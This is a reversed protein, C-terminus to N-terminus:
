TGGLRGGAADLLLQRTSDVVGPDKLYAHALDQASRSMKRFQDEGLAVSERLRRLFEDGDELPIDWGAMSRELDRWYTQDSTIVPLGALLAELIVHGFNETLTPFLFFHYNLLTAHVRDPPVPGLFQAEVNNPLRAILDNCRDLYDRDEPIGYIDFVIRGELDGLLRLAFDLNKKRALRSLFVFRCEGAKKLPKHELDGPSVEVRAPINPTIRALGDSYAAIEQREMECSAQWIVGRHLGIWRALTVFLRKKFKKLELAKTSLEGRPALVVPTRRMRGFRRLVLTVIAFSSFFSNLYVLDFRVGRFSRELSGPGRVYCVRCGDRELWRDSEIGAFPQADDCDRDRTVICFDFEDSLLDVLNSISRVPGGAKYAPLYYDMVVLVTPKNMMNPAIRTREDLREGHYRVKDV